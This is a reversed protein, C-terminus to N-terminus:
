LCNVFILLRLIVDDVMSQRCVDPSLAYKMRDRLSARRGLFRRLITRDEHGLLSGYLSDFEGAQKTILDRHRLRPLRRIRESYRSLLGSRDGLVNDSHQRYLTKPEKDYFVEGFASIVIYLWWDHMLANSPTKGMILDRAKSNIVITCGTAINEVLANRFSPGRRPIKNWLRIFSLSEDVIKLGGCYMTPGSSSKQTLIEVARCLKDREWVDDQDCLALYEATPSASQLLTLFSRVVGINQGYIVHVNKFTEYRQLVKKTGEGSGDDRILIEFDPYRQELVSELLDKLYKEGNYTSLLVQVKGLRATEM